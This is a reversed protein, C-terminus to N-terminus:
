KLVQFLNSRQDTWLRLGANKAIPVSHDTIEPQRLFASNQTALVWDSSYTVSNRYERDAVLITQFGADHAILEIVPALNLYKNSVHFAIVGDPKAVRAYIAFAERTLLHMPISDGSFADVSLVDFRRSPDDFDGRAIELELSLRADGLVPEIRAKSDALYTFQSQAIDLVAPNLEYIRLRDGPMGYTALTGAGLGISGIVLPGVTAHEYVLTRGIGSASGYYTTPMADQPVSTIQLGHKIVGHFLTRVQSRGYTKVEVRLTGYFNRTMFLTNASLIRFYDWGYTMTCLLATLAIARSMRYKQLCVASVILLAACGWRANGEVIKAWELVYNDLNAPLGGMLILILATAVMAIIINAVWTTRELVRMEGVSVWTGLSALGILALPAEWYGNFIRPALLAVALGGLAGGASVSLYFHTLYAPCPKSLSLEGHCLMCGFFLGATFVPLAVYVSLAAHHAFLAWAMAGAGLMAPVMWVERTYWGRGSRGEFCIVLSLLYLSLPLIWLFPISAVNQTIQNSVSLLLGSGLAACGIWYAYHRWSPPNDSPTRATTEGPCVQPLRQRRWAYSISCVLFFGYAYSWSWAQAQGTAFPEVAFPYSLLGALSGLNSLAFLRYISRDQIATASPSSLWKQLLPATSALMFYPLGVTVALLGLIQLAPQVDLREPWSRSPIIPLSACSVLLLVIHIWFQRRGTRRTLWHAYGYGFLLVVQFFVLCIMWVGASGGFWALIQKAVIPQVLFLLFSSLVITLAPVLM